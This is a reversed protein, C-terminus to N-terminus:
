SVVKSNKFERDYIDLATELILILYIIALIAM